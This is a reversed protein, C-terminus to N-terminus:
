VSDFWNAARLVEASVTVVPQGDTSVRPIGPPDHREIFATARDSADMDNEFGSGIERGRLRHERTSREAILRVYAITSEGIADAIWVQSESISAMVGCLVLHRIGLESFTMWLAQLNRRSIAILDEIQGPQPWIRDLEDTDILAHHIGLQRLHQGVELAATTKGTGSAGCIVLVQTEESIM